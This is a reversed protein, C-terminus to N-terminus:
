AFDSERGEANDTTYLLPFAICSAHSAIGRGVSIIATEGIVKVSIFFTHRKKREERRERKEEKRKEGNEKEKRKEKRKERKGERMRLLVLESGRLIREV